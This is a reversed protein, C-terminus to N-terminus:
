NKAPFAAPTTTTAKPHQSEMAILESVTVFKYGKALLADLTSPMAEITGPHIDHSLIIAGPKAGALIRREVVASGPRKWDNPDVSWLIVKMGDQEVLRHVRPNMAGYPPRLLVPKKGTAKFIAESTKNIEEQDRADSLKTLAPHSWTHNGIEHGEAAAQAVVEPAHEVNQGIVFFTVKIGRQKLMDLLRPTLTPSPGDDFSMAIYPGDVPVSCYSRFSSHAETLSAMKTDCVMGAPSALTAANTVIPAGPTSPVLSAAPAAVANSPVPSSTGQEQALLVVTTFLLTLFLRIVFITKM